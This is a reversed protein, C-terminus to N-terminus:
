TFRVLVIMLLTGGNDTETQGRAVAPLGDTEDMERIVCGRLREM